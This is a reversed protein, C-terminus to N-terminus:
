AAPAEVSSASFAKKELSESPSFDHFGGEARRSVGEEIVSFFVAILVVEFFPVELPFLSVGEEDGLPLALAIPCVDVVEGALSATRPMLEEHTNEEAFSVKAWPAGNARCGEGEFGEAIQVDLGVEFGDGVRNVKAGITHITGVSSLGM